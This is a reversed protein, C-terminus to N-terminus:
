VDVYVVEDKEREVEKAESGSVTGSGAGASRSNRSGRSGVMGLPVGSSSSRLPDGRLAADVAETATAAPVNPRSVDEATVANPSPNFM